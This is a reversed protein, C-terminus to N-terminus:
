NRGPDAIHAARERDAGAQGSADDVAEEAMDGVNRAADRAGRVLDRGANRLDRGAQAGPDRDQDFGAVRGDEGASYYGGSLPGRSENQYQITRDEAERNWSSASAGANATNGCGAASLGVALVLAALTLKERM